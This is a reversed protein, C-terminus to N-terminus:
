CCGSSTQCILYTDLEQRQYCAVSDLVWERTVIPVECMLGVGQFSSDDEWADPQVVVVPSSGLRPRLSSPKKVVSAGCLQVMWELHDTPMDTFPGYCCIELGKFIKVGQSERAREPGRHNRGNIVDGRVEFDCEPLVKGEKFSQVVWLFSVVWKGGAIGLFYKLTRECVFEADTKMIVHTTGETIQNSLTSQTKRAFKQVLMHEKPTLGSAVLSMRPSGTGGKRVRESACAEELQGRVSHGPTNSASTNTSEVTQLQSSRLACTSTPLNLIERLTTDKNEQPSCETKEPYVKVGSESEPVTELDPKLVCSQEVMVSREEPKRQQKEKLVAIRSIGEESSSEVKQLIRSHGLLSWDGNLMQSELLSSGEVGPEENKSSSDEPFARSNDASLSQAKQSKHYEVTKEAGKESKTQKLDPQDVSPCLGSEQSAPRNSTQSGHQELVAELVAMEQQLKKLNDQMTDRQQTTLIDSQFSLQSIDGPHSTESDYGSASEGLNADVGQDKLHHDEDLDSEREGEDQSVKPMESGSQMEQTRPQSRGQKSSGFVLASDKDNAKGTLDELSNSHSSFLSGSCESDQSSNDDQSAEGSSIQINSASGIDRNLFAPNEEAKNTPLEVAITKSKTPQSPTSAAKGFILDQFSPLEGEESSTDEEESSELKRAQRRSKWTLSPNRHALPSRSKRSQRVRFSKGVKDFVASQEKIDSEAFSEKIEGDSDLLDPTESWVQSSHTSEKTQELCPSSDTRIAQALKGNGEKGKRKPEKCNDQPFSQQCIQPQVLKLIPSTNLESEKNEGEEAQSSEGSSGISIFRNLDTAKSIYERSNSQSVPSLSSQVLSENGMATEPCTTQEDFREELLNNTYMTKSASSRAPSVSQKGDLVQSIGQNNGAIHECDDGGHLPAIHCLRSVGTTSCKAHDGPKREETQCAAVLSMVASKPQVPKSSERNGQKEKEQGGCDTANDPSQQSVTGPVASPKMCQQRPSSCLAFSQRKSRKFTNQLYQTDLESDEMETTTKSANQGEQGMLSRLDEKGSETNKSSCGDLLEKPTEMIECHSRHPSPEAKSNQPTDAPFLSTSEQTDWDTDPAELAELSGPAREGQLGEGGSLALDQDKSGPIAELSREDGEETFSCSALVQDRDTTLSDTARAPMNRIKLEPFVESICSEEAQDVPKHAMKTGVAIEESLLQLRRSRRIQKQKSNNGKRIEESSPYSDIQLESENSSSPNRDVVLELAHVIRVSPKKRLRDKKTMKVDRSNLELEGHDTSGAAPETGTRFTSEKEVSFLELVQVDKVEGVTHGDLAKQEPLSNATNMVQDNQERELIQDVSHNKKEPTKRIVPIDTKRIFDEPQLDSITKRKRKSRTNKPPQPPILSDPAMAEAFLNETIYNLNPHSSKRRYTKGFIKDEINNEAPRPCSREPVPPWVDDTADAVPDTKESISSNGDATNPHGDELTSPVEANQEHSRGNSNDSALIDNSRSLWENVKQISSKLKTGSLGNQPNGRPSEPHQPKEELEQRECLRHTNQEHQECAGPSKGASCIEKSEDLSSQQNRALAPQKSKDCLEAKEVNMRDINPLLSTTEPLLSSAHTDTGCPEMSLNSSSIGQSEDPHGETANEENVHVDETNPQHQQLSKITGEPLEYEAKGKPKLRVKSRTRRPSTQCLEQDEVSNCVANKVSDESSDSGLEIYVANNKICKKQKRRLSGKRIDLDFLQVGLSSELTSNEPESARFRKTRNRYGMSQIVAAEKKIPEPTSKEWKSFDQSNSFQFGTDLEFAQITKLLGEVLQNFRTSERLSRKTINDKCLPCQSPGKKKSLLKLMCFKCFIHDCTTSVPEKILELCIPCELIKQMGILVNKVEEISVTSLDM